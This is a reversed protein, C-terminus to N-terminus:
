HNRTNQEVYKDHIIRRTKSNSFSFNINEMSQYILIWKERCIYKEEFIAM